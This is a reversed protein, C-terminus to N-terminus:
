MRCLAIDAKSNRCGIYIRGLVEYADVYVGDGAGHVLSLFRCGDVIDVV